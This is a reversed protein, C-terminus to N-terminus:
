KNLIEKRAIKVAKQPKVNEENVLQEYRNMLKENRKEERTFLKM